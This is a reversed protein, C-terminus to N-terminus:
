AIYEEEWAELDEMAEAKTDATCLFAGDATYVEYYGKSAVIYGRMQFMGKREAANIIDNESDLLHSEIKNKELFNLQL